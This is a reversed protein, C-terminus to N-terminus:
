DLRNWTKIPEPIPMRQLPDVATGVGERPQAHSLGTRWRAPMLLCHEGAGDRPATWGRGAARPDGRPGGGVESGGGKEGTEGARMCRRERRGEGRAAKRYVRWGFETELRAEEGTGGQRTGKGSLAM